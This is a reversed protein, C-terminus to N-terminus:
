KKSEDPKANDEKPPTDQKEAEELEWKDEKLKLFIFPKKDKITGSPVDLFNKYMRVATPDVWIPDSPGWDTLQTEFSKTITGPSKFDWIEISNYGSRSTLDMTVTVFRKKDPSLVPIGGVKIEDGSRSDVLLAYTKEASVGAVDFVYYSVDELEIIRKYTYCPCSKEDKVVKKTGDELTIETQKKEVKPESVAYSFSNPFITLLSILIIKKHM